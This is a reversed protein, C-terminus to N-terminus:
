WRANLFEIVNTKQRLWLIMHKIAITLTQYVGNTKAMIIAITVVAVARPTFLRVNVFKEMIKTTSNKAFIMVFIRACLPRTGPIMSMVDKAHRAFGNTKTTGAGHAIQTTAVGRKTLIFPTHAVGANRKSMELWQKLV